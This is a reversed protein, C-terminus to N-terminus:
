WCVTTGTGIREHFRAQLDDGLKLHSRDLIYLAFNLTKGELAPMDVLPLTLRNVTLYITRNVKM